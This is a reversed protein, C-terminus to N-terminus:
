AWAPEELVAAAPGFCRDDLVKRVTRLLVDREFPKQILELGATSIFGDCNTDPEYGSCFIVKTAPNLTRIAAYVERGFRKPMVVDLLALDISDANSEYVRIAEEGDAATLTKYGAEDLIRAALDRVMPEDEAILITETGGCIPLEDDHNTQQPRKHPVPFYVKITTGHGPESYVHIAGAHQKVVGYVMALGLGTGEGVEKTTFFPEFVHQKVEPSMGCGTDAVSIMVYQGPRIDAHCECYSDHLDLSEAKLFLQGGAPMADRANLCLNLLMQQVLTADADIAPVMEGVDFRLEIHEGILPRLMKLLDTILANPDVSASKIPQRRSFSLLGRTLDTARQAARVVQQLDQYRQDHPALGEIAFNAYGSIAQLLNNFEHAVGGALEGVAELKQSQRLQQDRQQIARESEKRETVDRFNIVVGRVSSNALHNMGRVELVRWSGNKHQVRFENVLPQDPNQLIQSLTEAADPADEPHVFDFVSTGILEESTYGIIRVGASNEYRIAGRDDLIAVGEFANELINRYYERSQRLADQAHKLDTLDRTVRCFGLIRGNRDEVITTVVHAWFESGDKRVRLCDEQAQGAVEAIALADAPEGASASEAPCFVTFHEGVIEGATYGYMREAGTNWNVVHGRPDLMFIAYDRIGEIMLRSREESDRLADEMKRRETIDSIAALVLQGFETQLPNLSIELPFETGDKRIGLVERPAALPINPHEAYSMRQQLHARRFRSPLLMDVSQGLLEERTYGFQMETRANVLIIKGDADTVLMACPAAELFLRFKSESHQLQRHKKEMESESQRVQALLQRIAINQHRQIAYRLSRTLVECTAHEKHLYDQAGYALAALATEEEASGTLVVVPIEPHQAHIRVIGSLGNCDPLRLDLLIAQFSQDSLASLAATLDAVWCIDFQEKAESLKSQILAADTRSDEVLLIKVPQTSM